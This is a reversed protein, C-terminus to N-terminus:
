VTLLPVVLVVTPVEKVGEGKPLLSVNVAVIETVPPTPVGVPVTLKLSPAVVMPVTARDPPVAVSAVEERETPVWEMVATYLPSVLKAVEVDEGRECTIDWPVVLM